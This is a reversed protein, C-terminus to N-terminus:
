VNFVPCQFINVKHVYNETAYLIKANVMKNQGTILRGSLLRLGCLFGELCIILCANFNQIVIQHIVYKVCMKEDFSVKKWLHKCLNVRM